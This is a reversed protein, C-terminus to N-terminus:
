VARKIFNALPLGFLDLGIGGDGQICDHDHGADGAGDAEDVDAGGGGEVVDDGEADAAEVCGVDEGFGEEEPVADAAVHPVWALHRACGPVGVFEDPTGEM